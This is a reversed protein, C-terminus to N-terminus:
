LHLNFKGNEKADLIIEYMKDIEPWYNKAISRYIKM